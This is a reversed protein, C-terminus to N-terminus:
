VDLRELDQIVRRFVAAPYVGGFAASLAFIDEVLENEDGVLVDLIVRMGFNVDFGGWFLQHSKAFALCVCLPYRFGTSELSVQFQVGLKM